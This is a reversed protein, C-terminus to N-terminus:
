KVEYVAVAAREDDPYVRDLRGSDISQYVASGGKDRPPFFHYNIMAHTVGRDKLYEVFEDSSAFRRSFEVNHGPDAWVYNRNLYFGRTDGFLAVRAHSPLLNNMYRQAEYSDMSRSLYDDRSETGAVVPWASLLGPRITGFGVLATAVLVLWLAARTARGGEGRGEGEPPSFTRCAVEAIILAAVAFAPILYRSQHSLGFWVGVLALLFAVLGRTAAQRRWGVFLFPVVLLLIPGVYLGPTDYFSESCATINFPLLLLSAFDHGTGFQAQLSAYNAALAATWDRGGFISFLFPYVPNGTYLFTKVYWPACVVAAVGAIVGAAKWRGRGSAILAWLALMPIVALGAAIGCGVLARRDSSELHVLVLHLGLITYLATALDVYATTMEWMVLPIGGVGVASMWAARSGFFRRATMWVVAILMVGTWYNMLKAAVPDGLSLGPMYLTEMLYPFNSHSSFSVYCFGGHELFLKPMALHYALSDWDSMAPPALAPVLATLALVALLALAARSEPSREREDGPVSSRWVRRRRALAIVGPTLSLGVFYWLWDLLRLAGLAFFVLSLAGLGFATDTLLAEIASADDRRWLRRLGVGLSLGAALVVLSVGISQATHVM